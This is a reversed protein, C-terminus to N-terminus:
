FIPIGKETSKNVARYGQSLLVQLVEIIIKGHMLKWCFIHFRSQFLEERATWERVLTQITSDKREMVQTQPIQM